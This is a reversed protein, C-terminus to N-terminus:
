NGRRKRKRMENIVEVLIVPWFIGALLMAGIYDGAFRFKVPKAALWESFVFLAAGTFWYWWVWQLIDWIM